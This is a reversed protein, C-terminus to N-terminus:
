QQAMHQTYPDVFATLTFLNAWYYENLRLVIRPGPIHFQSLEVQPLMDRGSPLQAPPTDAGTLIRNEARCDTFGKRLVIGLKSSLPPILPFIHSCRLQVTAFFM